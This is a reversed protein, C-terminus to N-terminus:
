YLNNNKNNNDTKANGYKMLYSKNFFFQCNSATPTYCKLYDKAPGPEDDVMATVERAVEWANKEMRIAEREKVESASLKKIEEDTLGDFPKFYEWKLATGDVLADGISANTREAENQASDGPARHIRNGRESSQIRAIEVDRFRVEINTVGVGDTTKLINCCFKPCRM